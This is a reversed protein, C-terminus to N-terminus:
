GGVYTCKLLVKVCVVCWLLVKLIRKYMYM